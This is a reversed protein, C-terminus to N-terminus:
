NKFIICAGVGDCRSNFGNLPESPLYGYLVTTGTSGKKPTVDELVVQKPPPNLPHQARSAHARLLWECIRSQLRQRLRARAFLLDFDYHYHLANSPAQRREKM